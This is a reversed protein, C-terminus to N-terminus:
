VASHITGFQVHQQTMLIGDPRLSHTPCYVERAHEEGFDNSGGPQGLKSRSTLTFITSMRDYLALIINLIM